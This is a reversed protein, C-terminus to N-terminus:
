TCRSTPRRRANSRRSSSASSRPAIAGPSADLCRAPRSTSPRTCIRPGTDRTTTPAASSRGPGCPCCRIPGASRRCRRRRTSRSSWRMTPRTSTSGSSTSSKRPSSRIGVASSPRSGIRSSTPPRGSRGCRGSRSAPPLAGDAAHELPNGRCTGARHDAAPHARRSAPQAGYTAGIAPPGGIRRAGRGPLPPVVPARDGPQHARRAERPRDRPPGVKLAGTRYSRLHRTRTVPNGRRDDRCASKM